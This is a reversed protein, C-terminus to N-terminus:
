FVQLGSELVCTADTGRLLASLAKAPDVVIMVLAGAHNLSLLKGHQVASLKGGPAKAEIAILRGHHCAILDPMGLMDSGVFRGEGAKTTILKGAAEMRCCWIGAANLGEIMARLIPAETLGTTRQHYPKPLNILRGKLGSAKPQNDRALWASHTEGTELCWDRFKGM